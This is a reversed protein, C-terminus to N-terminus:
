CISRLNFSTSWQSLWEEETVLLIRELGPGNQIVSWDQRLGMAISTASRLSFSCVRMIHVAFITNKEKQTIINHRKESCFHVSYYMYSALSHVHPRLGNVQSCLANKIIKKNVISEKHIICCTGWDWEDWQREMDARQHQLWGWSSLLVLFCHFFLM